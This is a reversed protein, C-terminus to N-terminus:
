RGLMGIPFNWPTILAVVGLPQRLTLFRKRPDPSPIVEGYSRRVEEAYWQFFSAAFGVEGRAEGLPKGNEATIIAALEEQRAM